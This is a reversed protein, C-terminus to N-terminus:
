PESSGDDRQVHLEIRSETNRLLEVEAEITSSAFDRGLRQLEVLLWGGTEFFDTKSDFVGAEVQHEAENWLEESPSISAKKSSDKQVRM